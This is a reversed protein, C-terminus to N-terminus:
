ELIAPVPTINHVHAKIYKPGLSEQAASYLQAQTVHGWEKQNSKELEAFATETKSRAGTNRNRQGKISEVNIPQIETKFNIPVM